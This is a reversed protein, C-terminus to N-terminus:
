KELQKELQKNLEKKMSNIKRTDLLTNDYGGFFHAFDVILEKKDELADTTESLVVIECGFKEFLYTFFTFGFRTLRDKHTIVLKNVKGALVEDMLAFFDKRKEFNFVSATDKFVGNVVLGNQFCFNTLLQVQKELAEKERSHSVRAYIYTKRDADRNMMKYVSDADYEYRGNGKVVTKIKGEKVYKTLTPRTIRLIRLVESAKM